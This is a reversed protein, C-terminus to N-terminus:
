AARVAYYITSDGVSEPDVSTVTLRRPGIFLVDGAEIARPLGLAPIMFMGSVDRESTDAKARNVEDLISARAVFDRAWWVTVEDNAAISAELVPSISVTAANGSVIADAEVSYTRGAITLLDGVIFRGVLTSAGVTIANAGAAANARVLLQGIMTPPSTHPNSGAMRDPMRIIIRAGRRIAAARVRQRLWVGPRM